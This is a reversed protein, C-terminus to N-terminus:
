RLSAPRGCPSTPLARLSAKIGGRVRMRSAAGASWRMSEAPMAIPSPLTGESSRVSDDVNAPCRDSAVPHAFFWELSVARSGIRSRRPYPNSANRCRASTSRGVRPPAISGDGRAAAYKSEEQLAQSNWGRCNRDCHRFLGPHNSTFERLVPTNTGCLAARAFRIELDMAGCCSQVTRPRARSFGVVTAAATSDSRSRLAVETVSVPAAVGAHVRSLGAVAAPRGAGLCRM